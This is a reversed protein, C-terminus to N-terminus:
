RRIVGLKECVNDVEKVNWGNELFYDRVKMADELTRYTGFNHSKCNLSKYITFGTGLRYIYLSVRRSGKCNYNPKRNKTYPREMNDVAYKFTINHKTCAEAITLGDRLDKRFDSLLQNM